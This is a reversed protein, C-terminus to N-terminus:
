SFDYEIFSKKLFIFFDQQSYTIKRQYERTEKFFVYKENQPVRPQVGKLVSLWHFSYYTEKPYPPLQSHILTNLDLQKDDPIEIRQNELYGATEYTIKHNHSYGLLPPIAKIKLAENIHESTLKTDYQHKQISKATELLTSFILYFRTYIEDESKNGDKFHLGKEDLIARIAMRSVLSNTRLPHSMISFNQFVKQDNEYM